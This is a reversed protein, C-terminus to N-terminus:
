GTSAERYEGPTQGTERKFARSFAEPAEYGIRHAVEALSFSTERLM